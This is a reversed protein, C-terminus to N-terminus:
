ARNPACSKKRSDQMKGTFNKYSEQSIRAYIKKKITTSTITYTKCNEGNSVGKEPYLVV